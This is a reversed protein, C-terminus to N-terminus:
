RPECDLRREWMGGPPRAAASLLRSRELTLALEGGIKVGVAVEGDVGKTDRTTRHVSAEFRARDAFARGLAALAARGAPARRWAAYAARVVPDALDLRANLEWRRGDGASAGLQQGLAGGLSGDGELTGVATLGLEVPRGQSDLTLGLLAEGDARGQGRVLGAGALLAGSDRAIRVYVTVAGTRRERRGGLVGTLEGEVSGGIRALRGNMEAQGVVGGEFFVADPRPVAPGGLLRRALRRPRDLTALPLEGDRVAALLRDAEAASAAHFIRGDGAIALLAARVNTGIGLRSGGARVAGRVGAGVEAGAGSVAVVTLRISGDSLEERLVVRRDDLRVVLVKLAVRREDRVAALVCPRSRPARCSGGSVVCLARRMGGMVGNAVAPAAIGATAATVGLLMAVLALVAVYEGAAQGEESGPSWRARM